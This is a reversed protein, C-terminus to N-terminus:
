RPAWPTLGEFPTSELCSTLMRELEPWPIQSRDYAQDPELDAGCLVSAQFEDAPLVETKTMLTVAVSTMPTTRHFMRPPMDYSRGAHVVFSTGLRVGFRGPQRLLPRNGTPLRDPGATWMSWGGDDNPYVSLEEQRVAGRLVASHFGFRHNHTQTNVRQCLTTLRPHWVHLRTEHPDGGLSVQVFGNGHVCVNDPYDTM